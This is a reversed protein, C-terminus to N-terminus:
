RLASGKPKSKISPDKQKSGYKSTQSAIKQAQRQIRIRNNPSRKDSVKVVGLFNKFQKSENHYLQSM